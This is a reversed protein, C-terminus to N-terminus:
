EFTELQIIRHFYEFGGQINNKQIIAIEITSL